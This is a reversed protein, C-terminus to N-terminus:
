CGAGEAHSLPRSSMPKLLRVLDAPPVPKSYLYGQMENCRLLRLTKAQDEADVGEAVVKLKLSHALSIIMSVLTMANPDSLMTIVFSRDIKLSTVPLKALYGLSSYGTGFDDVAIDVGLSRIAQLKEINGAVDDMILSETIELEVGPPSAGLELVRKLRSVFDRQRLQVTSINVAIRPAHIGQELWERHQLVARRLAWAGVELILGTEELLPIFKAPPVLGGDTQWRILAEVALIRREELDVRPQYHLVFEDRELARRLRTELDLKEAVRETMKQEFFLRREGTRKCAKVAAEANRLLTDADNGHDPFLAIGAKASVRLEQEGIRFPEDLCAKALAGLQRAAEFENRAEPLAIAFHDAGLRSVHIPESVCKVLREAFRTLLLDGASRGFSDNVARFREIDSVVVALKKREETASQIYQSLRELFLKRNAVGTIGDYYALYNLKESTAIHDLAFAIDGALELLLRMEEEDFFDPEDAFLGLVGAVDGRVLIPLVAGSRYGREAAQERLRFKTDLGMDNIIVPRKERVARRVLGRGEAGPDRLSLTAFRLFGDENGHHAVPTVEMAEPDYTGLWAM